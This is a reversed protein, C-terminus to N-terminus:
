FPIARFPRKDKKKPRDYYANKLQYSIEVCFNKRAFVKAHFQYSFVEGQKLHLTPLSQQGGSSLKFMLKTPSM